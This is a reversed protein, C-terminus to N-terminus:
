ERNAFLSYIIYLIGVLQHWSSNSMNFGCSITIKNFINDTIVNELFSSPSLKDCFLSAMSKHILGESTLAPMFRRTNEPNSPGVSLFLECLIINNGTFSAQRSHKIDATFYKKGACSPVYVRPM